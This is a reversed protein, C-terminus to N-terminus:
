TTESPFKVPVECGPLVSQLFIKSFVFFGWMRGVIYSFQSGQPTKSCGFSVRTSNNPIALVCLLPLQPSYM